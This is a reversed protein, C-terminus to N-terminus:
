WDYFGGSHCEELTEIVDLLRKVTSDIPSSSGEWANNAGWANKAGPHLAFVWTSHQMFEIAMTKTAQNLAAKSMRYSYLGGVNNESISGALASINVVVSAPPEPRDQMLLPAIEKTFLVPGIVNVAMSKELWSRQTSEISSESGVGVVGAANLLLDIRDYTERLYAGAKEISAQNELDFSIVDLRGSDDLAAITKESSPSRICAVITGKTKELLQKVFEHGIGASAGTVVFVADEEGNRDAQPAQDEKPPSTSAVATEPEEAKDSPASSPDMKLTPLVPETPIPVGDDPPPLKPAVPSPEPPEEEKEDPPTSEADNPTAPAGSENNEEPLEQEDEPIPPSAPVSPDQEEADSPDTPAGVAAAEDENPLEPSEISNNEQPVPPSEPTMAEEEVQPPSLDDVNDPPSSPKEDTPAKDIPLPSDMEEPSSSDAMDENVDVTPEDSEKNPVVVAPVPSPPSGNNEVETITSESDSSSNSSDSTSSDDDDQSKESEEMPKLPARAERKLVAAPQTSFEKEDEKEDVPTM